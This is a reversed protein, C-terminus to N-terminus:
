LSALRGGDVVLAAGTVFAADDCLLFAVAAAIEGPAGVYAPAIQEAGSKLNPNDWLMPTDVAGPLIANVRIGKPKGEISATRTLSCLAAKAAAYPAALPSTQIAHVSAVNVISGGPRMATFANKTFYAAGLLNVDLVQYWDERTLAEIPKFTMVAANNVVHDIRGFRELAGDFVAAVEDERGVDTPPACWVDQSDASIGAASALRDVLVLKAGEAALRTWVASGIGGSAGTVIAVKDKFRTNASM